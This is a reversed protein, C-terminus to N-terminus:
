VCRALCAAIKRRLSGEGHRHLFGGHRHTIDDNIVRRLSVFLLVM